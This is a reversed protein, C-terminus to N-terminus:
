VAPPTEKPDEANAVGDAPCCDVVVRNVPGAVPEHVVMVEMSIQSEAPVGTRYRWPASVLLM